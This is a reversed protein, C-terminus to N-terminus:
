TKAVNGVTDAQRLYKRYRCYRVMKPHPSFIAYHHPNLRMKPAHSFEVQPMAFNWKHCQLTGSTANCFEVQPMPECTDYFKKLVRM